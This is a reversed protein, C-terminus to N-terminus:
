EERRPDFYLLVNGSETIEMTDLTGICGESEYNVKAKSDAKCLLAILQEVNDFTM